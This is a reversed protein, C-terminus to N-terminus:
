VLDSLSKMRELRKPENKCLWKDESLEKLALGFYMKYLEENKLLYLEGLEEYVYGDPKNSEIMEELLGLQITIAQEVKNLARLTRAVCWKALFIESASKKEERWQLARLFISLAKEYEQLDFYSWGLNNYLSGLWNKAQEQASKEALLLAQENISIAEEPKAVIALMHLADIAYSDQQLQQALAFAQEFHLRADPKNGSSNYTRGRELHYRIHATISSEPLLKETANLLTHAEDFMGRLSYTRAIQTQLELQYGSSGDIGDLLERFKKETEAPQHYNWLKDFDQM